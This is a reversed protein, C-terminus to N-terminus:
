KQGIVFLYDGLDCEYEKIINKIKGSEIDAALNKLGKDLETQNASLQFSSIGDRVKPDLYFEPRYKGSHLFLDQTNETVFFRKTQINKFGAQELDKKIENYNAMKKMADAMMKPFYHCLWYRKMQEPTATFIVFNGEKLVRFVEQFLKQNDNIHHTALICTAGDFNDEQFPLKKADGQSFKISPYKQIAKNLMEDSIDIGEIDLGKTELAGTYNGSGCGIDLFKKNPQSSLLQLLQEVIKTDPKRTTDYTKGITNYVISSNM